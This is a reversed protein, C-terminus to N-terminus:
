PCDPSVKLNYVPDTRVRVTCTYNYQPCNFPKCKSESRESSRVVDFLSGEAPHEGRLTLIVDQCWRGSDYGGGRWGSERQVNIDTKFNEVGNSPIRCARKDAPPPRTLAVALDAVCKTYDQYTFQQIKSVLQGSQTVRLEKDATVEFDFGGSTSIKGRGGSASATQLGSCVAAIDKLDIQYTSPPSNAVPQAAVPLSAFVMWAVLACAIQKKLHGTM